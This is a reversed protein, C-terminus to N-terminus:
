ISRIERIRDNYRTVSSTGLRWNQSANFSLRSFFITLMIGVIKRFDISKRGSVYMFGTM